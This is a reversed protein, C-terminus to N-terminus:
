WDCYLCLDDIVVKKFALFKAGDSSAADKDHGSITVPQYKGDCTDLSFGKLKVGLAFKSGESALSLQIKDEVRFYVNKVSVKLNRV